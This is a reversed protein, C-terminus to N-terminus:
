WEAVQSHRAGIKICFTAWTFQKYDPCSEFRYRNRTLMEAVVEVMNVM